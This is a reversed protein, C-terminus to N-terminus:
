LRDRQALYRRRFSDIFTRLHHEFPYVDLLAAQALPARAGRFPDADVLPDLRTLLFDDGALEIPEAPRPRSPATPSAIAAPADSASDLAGVQLTGGPGALLDALAAYVDIPGDDSIRVSPVRVERLGITDGDITVNRGTAPRATTAGGPAAKDVIFCSLSVIARADPPPPEPPRGLARGMVDVQRQRARRDLVARVSALAGDRDLTAVTATALQQCADAPAGWHLIVDTCSATTGFRSAFLLQGLVHEVVRAEDGARWTPWLPLEAFRESCRTEGLFRDRTERPHPDPLNIWLHHAAHPTGTIAHHIDALLSDVFGLHVRVESTRHAAAAIPDVATAAGFAEAVRRYGYHLAPEDLQRRTCVERHTVPSIIVPAAVPKPACAGLTKAYGLAFARKVLACGPPELPPPAPEPAAAPEKPQAPEPLCYESPAPEALEDPLQTLRAAAHNSFAVLAIAAFGALLLIRQVIGPLERPADSLQLAPRGRELVVAHESPIAFRWGIGILAVTASATLGILFCAAASLHRLYDLDLAHRAAGIALLAAALGVATISKIGLGRRM